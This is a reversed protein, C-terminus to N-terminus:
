VAEVEHCGKEACTTLFRVQAKAERNGLLPNDTAEAGPTDGSRRSPLPAAALLLQEHKWGMCGM